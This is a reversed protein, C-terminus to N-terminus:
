SRAKLFKLLQLFIILSLKRNRNFSSEKFYGLFQYQNSLNFMKTDALQKLLNQPTRKFIFQCSGHPKVTKM